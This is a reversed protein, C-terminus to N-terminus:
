KHLWNKVSKSTVGSMEFSLVEEVLYDINQLSIEGKFLDFLAFFCAVFIALTLM